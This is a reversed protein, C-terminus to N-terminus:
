VRTPESRPDAVAVGLMQTHQDGVLTVIPEREDGRDDRREAVLDDCALDLDFVDARHGGRRRV